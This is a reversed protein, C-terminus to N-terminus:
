GLPVEDGQSLFEIHPTPLSHNTPIKKLSLLIRYYMAGDCLLSKEKLFDKVEKLKLKEVKKEYVAVNTDIKSVVPQAYELSVYKVM